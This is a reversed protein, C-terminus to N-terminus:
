IFSIISLTDSNHKSKKKAPDNLKEGHFPALLLSSPIFAKHYLSGTSRTEADSLIDGPAHRHLYEPMHSQSLGSPRLCVEQVLFVRPFVEFVDKSMTFCHHKGVILRETADLSLM